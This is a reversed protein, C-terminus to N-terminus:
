KFGLFKTDCGTVLGDTVTIRFSHHAWQGFANKKKLKGQVVTVSSNLPSSSISTIKVTPEQEKLYDWAINKASSAKQQEKNDTEPLRIDFVCMCIMFLVLGVIGLTLLLCGPSFLCGLSDHFFEKQDQIFREKWSIQRM